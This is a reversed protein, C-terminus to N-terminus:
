HACPSSLPVPSHWLDSCFYTTLLVTLANGPLSKPKWVVTHPIWCPLAQAPLAPVLKLRQKAGEAEAQEHPKVFQQADGQLMHQGLSLKQLPSGTVAPCINLTFTSADSGPKALNSQFGEEWTPLDLYGVAPGKGQAARPQIPSSLSNGFRQLSAM